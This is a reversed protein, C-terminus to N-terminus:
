SAHETFQYMADNDANFGAAMVVSLGFTILSVVFATTYAVNTTDFPLGNRISVSGGTRRASYPRRDM